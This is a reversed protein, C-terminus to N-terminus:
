NGRIEFFLKKVQRFYFKILLYKQMSKNLIKPIGEIFLKRHKLDKQKDRNQEKTVAVKIQLTAGQFKQKREM